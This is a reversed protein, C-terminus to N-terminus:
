MWVSVGAGKVFAHELEVDDMVAGGVSAVGVCACCIGVMDVVVDDMGTICVRSVGVAEGVEGADVHASGVDTDTVVRGGVDMCGVDVGGVDLHGRRCWEDRVLFALKVWLNV